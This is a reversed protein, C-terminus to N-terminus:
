CQVAGAIFAVWTGLPLAGWLLSSEFCAWCVHGEIGEGLAPSVSVAPSGHPQLKSLGGGRCGNRERFGKDHYFRRM